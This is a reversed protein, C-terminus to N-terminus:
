LGSLHWPKSYILHDLSGKRAMCANALRLCEDCILANGQAVIIFSREKDWTRCFSCKVDPEPM